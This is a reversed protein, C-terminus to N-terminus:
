KFVGLRQKDSFMGTSYEFYMKGDEVIYEGELVDGNPMTKTEVGEYKAQLQEITLVPDSPKPPPPEEKEPGLGLLDAAASMVSAMGWGGSAVEQAISEQFSTQIFAADGTSAISIPRMKNFNGQAPGGKGGHNQARIESGYAVPDVVTNTQLIPCLGLAIGAKDPPVEHPLPAFPLHKDFTVRVQGGDPAGHQSAPSQKDAGMPMSICEIVSVDQLKNLERRKKRRYNRYKLLAKASLGKRAYTLERQSM